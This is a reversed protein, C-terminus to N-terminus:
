VVFIRLWARRRPPRMAARPPWRDESRAFGVASRRRNPEAGLALAQRQLADVEADLAAIRQRERVYQSSSAFDAKALQSGATANARPLL